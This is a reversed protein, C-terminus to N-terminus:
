FEENAESLVKMKKEVKDIAGNGKRVLDIGESFLTYSDELNLKESELRALTKELKEMIDELKDEEKGKKENDM